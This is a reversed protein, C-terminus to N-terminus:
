CSSVIPFYPTGPLSSLLPSAWRLLFAVTLDLWQERRQGKVLRKSFTMAKLVPGEDWLCSILRSQM